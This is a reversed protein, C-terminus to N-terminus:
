EEKKADAKKTVDYMIPTAIFISAYTGVVIGVILAVALGTVGGLGWTWGKFRRKPADVCFFHGSKETVIATNPRSTRNQPTTGCLHGHKETVIHITTIHHVCLSSIASVFDRFQVSM